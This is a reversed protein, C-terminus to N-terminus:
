TQVCDLIRAVAPEVEGVSTLSRFIEELRAGKSQSRLEGMTGSAVLRGEDIILVRSCVQEVVDLVHSSYLIAKGARALGQILERVLLSSQVDLGSLPEDLFLVDPNHLLAGAILVKQRMGRSFGRMRTWKKDSLAFSQMIGEIRSRLSAQRLGRLRGILELYEFATLSEYLDGSEPVYGICRKVELAQRPADLGNVRVSGSFGPLISALIRITTTKGAGNLGVLGVVEGPHVAFSLGHLVEARGYSFSLDRVEIAAHTRPIKTM